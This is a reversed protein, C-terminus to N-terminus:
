QVSSTIDDFNQTTDIQTQVDKVEYLTADYDDKIEYLLNQKFIANEDTFYTVEGTLVNRIQKGYIGRGIEANTYEVMNVELMIPNFYTNTLIINQGPTGIFPRQNPKVTSVSNPTVTLYILSGADNFRYSVSKQTTNTLNASVAEAKNSSTIITFYNNNLTQKGNVTDLYEIRYGPLTNVLQKLDVTNGANDVAGTLDLVIGKEQPLASLSGCDLIKCRIQKPRIIINYIGIKNFINSTLKITYLGGFIETSSDPMYYPVLYQSAPTLPTLAGTPAVDRSSVYTYYIECDEPSVTSVRNNGFRGVSM